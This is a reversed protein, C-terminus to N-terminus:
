LTQNIPTGRHFGRIVERATDAARLVVHHRLTPAAAQGVQLHRDGASVAAVRPRGHASRACHGRPPVFRVGSRGGHAFGRIVHRRARASPMPALLLARGRGAIGQCLLDTCRGVYQYMRGVTRTPKSRLVWSGHHWWFMTPYEHYLLDQGEEHTANSRFWGLLMTNPGDAAAIDVMQEDYEYMVTQCNDLHIPLRVVSPWLGHLPFGNIRWAAESASTWRGDIYEAAENVAKRESTAKPPQGTDEVVKVMCRDAGKHVYRSM